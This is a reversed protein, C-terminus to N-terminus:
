NTAIIYPNNYEGTGGRTATADSSISLAPVMRYLYSGDEFDAEMLDGISSIYSMNYSKSKTAGNGPSILVEGFGTYLYYNINELYYHGGAYSAEDATLLAVPKSINGRSVSYKDSEQPCKYQPSGFRYYPGFMIAGIKEGGLPDAEYTTDNCFAEDVILSTVKSGQTEINQTYWTEVIIKANSDMGEEHVWKVYKLDSYNGNYSYTFKNTGNVTIGVDSGTQPCTNNTRDYEGGYRLKISEGGENTRVIRWCYNAFVLYNNEVVGRFYLVEEGTGDGNTDETKTLDSTRFLGSESAEDAVDGFLDESDNKITPNNALIKSLITVDEWQAYLNQASTIQVKTSSTVQTGGSAATFWGVLEYGDRNISPLEGYTSDYTVSKTSFSPTGGGNANFTVTSNIPNWNATLKTETTGGTFVTGSIIGDGDKDWGTFNYGTRVPTSLTINQGYYVSVITNSTSSNYSGGNPNITLNYKQREYNYNIVNNAEVESITLEIASPSNFGTYTKVSPTVKTGYNAVGRETDADVLTYGSGDTNMKNHYAIWPYDNVQWNATLTCDESGITLVNTSLDAKNSSKTWGTFTYGTRTPDVINQTSNYEMEYTTENTSNNYSGGNPDITLNYKNVEYVALLTTDSEGMTFTGDVITSETGESEVTWGLFTYGEYTPDSVELTEDYTMNYTQSGTTGQWVGGNSNVVLTPRPTIDAYGINGNKSKVWLTAKYSTIQTELNLEKTDKINVWEIDEPVLDATQYTLAYAVIGSSDTAKATLIYNETNFSEIVPVDTENEYYEKINITGNFRKGQNYNQNSGTEKFILTIEYEHTYGSPIAINSLIRLDDASNMVKNEFGYCNGGETNTDYDSYSTCTLSYVLEDQEITNEFDKWWITYNTDLTGTNTVKFTKSATWSPNVYKGEIEPGDQFLLELTGTEVLMEKADENGSIQQSFWAYTVSTSVIFAVLLLIGYVLKNNKTIQKM